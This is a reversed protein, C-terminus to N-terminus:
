ALARFKKYLFTADLLHVVYAAALAAYWSGFFIFGIGFGVFRLWYTTLTIVVWVFISHKM